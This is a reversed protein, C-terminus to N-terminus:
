HPNRGSAIAWHHPQHHSGYAILGIYGLGVIKKTDAPSDSTIALIYNGDQKSVTMDWGTEIKLQAPHVDFVRDLALMADADKPRVVTELGNSIQKQSIIDVGVTM